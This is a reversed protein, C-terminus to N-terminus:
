RNAGKLVGGVGSHMGGSVRETLGKLSGEATSGSGRKRPSRRLLKAEREEEAAEELLVNFGGGEKDDVVQKRSEGAQITAKGSPAAPAMEAYMATIPDPEEDEDVKTSDSAKSGTIPGKSIRMKAEAAKRSREYRASVDGGVWMTGM